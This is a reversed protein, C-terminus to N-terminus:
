ALVAWPRLRRVAQGCNSGIRDERGDGVSWIVEFGERALLRAAPEIERQRPTRLLSALHHRVSEATPNLPTLKVLFRAPDFREAILRPDFPSGEALAFNLGVKRDGAEVFAEGLRALESLDLHPVPIFWRRTAADTSQISFQLQFRGPFHRRKVALLDAFWRERGRPAVSAVCCHLGGSPLLEPLAAAARPVADNLSPEGMRAFHVKLKKCRDALRPHRARVWRVQALIEDMSLNGRFDGGADCCPCGVPCGFQTSLNIVWKERRPLPPARGDVTEALRGGGFDLVAVSAVRPDGSLSAVRFFGFRETSLAEM